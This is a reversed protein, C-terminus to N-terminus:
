TDVVEFSDIGVVEVAAQAVDFGIHVGDAGRQVEVEVEIRASCSSRREREHKKGADAAQREGVEVLVGQALEHFMTFVEEDLPLSRKGLRGAETSRCRRECVSESAPDEEAHAVVLLKVAVGLGPVEVQLGVERAHKAVLGIRERREDGVHAFEVTRWESHEPHELRGVRRVDHPAGSRHIHAARLALFRDVVM